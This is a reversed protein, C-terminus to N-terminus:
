FAIWVIMHDSYYVPIAVAKVAFEEPYNALVLNIVSGSILQCSNLKTMQQTCFKVGSSDSTWDLNFDGMIVNYFETLHRQHITKHMQQTFFMIGPSDSTWDLNFDGMIVNYFETLHRQHITKLVDVLIMTPTKPPNYIYVVNVKTGLRTIQSQMIEINNSSLNRTNLLLKERTYLTLGYRIKSIATKDASIFFM